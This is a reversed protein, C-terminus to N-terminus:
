FLHVLWWVDPVEHSGLGFRTRRTGLYNLTSRIHVIQYLVVLLFVVELLYGNASSAHLDIRLADVNVIVVAVTLHILM